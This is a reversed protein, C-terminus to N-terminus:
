ISAQQIFSFDGLALSSQKARLLLLHVGEYYALLFLFFTQFPLVWGGESPHMIL